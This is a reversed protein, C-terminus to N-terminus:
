PREAVTCPLVQDPKSCFVCKFCSSNKCSMLVGHVCLRLTEPKCDMLVMGAQTFANDNDRLFASLTM